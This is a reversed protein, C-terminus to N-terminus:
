PTPLTCNFSPENSPVFTTLQSPTPASTTSPGEIPFPVTGDVYTGYVFGNDTKTLVIHQLVQNSAPTTATVNGNVTVTCEVSVDIYLTQANRLETVARPVNNADTGYIYDSVFGMTSSSNWADYNIGQGGNCAPGNYTVGNAFGITGDGSLFTVDDAQKSIVIFYGINVIPGQDSSVAFQFYEIQADANKLADPTVTFNAVVQIMAGNFTTTYNGGNQNPNCYAYTVNANFWSEFTTQANAITVEPSNPQTNHQTNNYPQYGQALGDAKAVLSTDIQKNNLNAWYYGILADSLAIVIILVVAIVMRKILM